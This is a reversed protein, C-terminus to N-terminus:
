ESEREWGKGCGVGWRRGDWEVWLWKGGWGKGDGGRTGGM